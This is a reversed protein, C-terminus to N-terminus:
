LTVTSFLSQQSLASYSFTCKKPLIEFNKWTQVTQQCLHICLSNEVLTNFGHSTLNPDKKTGVGVQRRELWAQRSDLVDYGACKSCLRRITKGVAIPWCGRDPKRLAIMKAGILYLRLGDPVKNELIM